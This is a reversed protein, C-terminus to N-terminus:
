QKSRRASRMLLSDTWQHNMTSWLFEQIEPDLPFAFPTYQCRMWLVVIKGLGFVKSWNVVAQGDSSRIIVTSGKVDESRFIVGLIPSLLPIMPTEMDGVTRATVSYLSSPSYSAFPDMLEQLTELDRREVSTLLGQAHAESFVRELYEVAPHRLGELIASAMEYNQQEYLMRCVELFYRLARQCEAWTTPTVIVAAAWRQLHASFEMLETLKTSVSVKMATDTWANNLLERIHVSAFLSFSLLCIQRALHEADIEVVSLPKQMVTTELTSAPPPTAHIAAGAAGNLAAGGGNAAGRGELGPSNLPAVYPHSPLGTGGYRPDRLPSGVSSPQGTSGHARESFRAGLSNAMGASFPEPTLRLDATMATRLPSSSSTCGLAPRLVATDAFVRTPGEPTFPLSRQCEASLEVPRYYVVIARQLYVVFELLTQAVENQLPARTAPNLMVSADLPFNRQPFLGAVGLDAARRADVFGHRKNHRLNGLGGGGSGPAIASTPSAGGTAAAAHAFAAARRRSACYVGEQCPWQEKGIADNLFNVPGFFGESAVFVALRQLCLLTLDTEHVRCYVLICHLIRRELYVARSTDEVEAEWARVSRYLRILKTLLVEVQVFLSALLLFVNTFNVMPITSTFPADMETLILVEILLNVSGGVAPAVAGTGAMADAVSLEAQINDLAELRIGTADFDIPRWPLTDDLLRARRAADGALLELDTKELRYRDAGSKVADLSGTTRGDVSAPDGAAGGNSGVRLWDNEHRADGAGSYFADGSRPPNGPNDAGGQAPAARSVVVETARLFRAWADPTRVQQEPASMHKRFQALATRYRPAALYSEVFADMHRLYVADARQQLFSSQATTPQSALQATAAHLYLQHQRQRRRERVAAVDVDITSVLSSRVDRTPAYYAASAPSTVTHHRVGSNSFSVRSSPGESQDTMKSYARHVNNADDGGSDDDEDEDDDDDNPDDDSNDLSSDSSTASLAATTTEHSSHSASSPSSSSASAVGLHPKANVAESGERFRSNHADGQECSLVTAGAPLHRTDALLPRPPGSPPLPPHTNVPPHLSKHDEHNENRENHSRGEQADDEGTLSPPAYETDSSDASSTSESSSSSPAVHVKGSGVAKNEASHRISDPAMAAYPDPHRGQTTPSDARKPTPQEQTHNFGAQQKAGAGNAKGTGATDSDSSSISHSEESRGGGGGSSSSGAQSVFVGVGHQDPTPKRQTNKKKRHSRRFRRSVFGLIGSLEDFTATRNSSASAGMVAGRTELQQAGDANKDSRHGLM